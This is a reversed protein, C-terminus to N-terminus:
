GRRCLAPSGAASVVAAVTIECRIVAIKAIAHAPGAIAAHKTSPQELASGAASEFVRIPAGSRRAHTPEVARRANGIKQKAFYPRSRRASGDVKSWKGVACDAFWGGATCGHWHHRSWRQDACDQQWVSRLHSALSVPDIG